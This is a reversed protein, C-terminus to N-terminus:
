RVTTLLDVGVACGKGLGLAHLISIGGNATGVGLVTM